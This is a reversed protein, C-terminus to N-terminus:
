SLGSHDSPTTSSTPASAAPAPAYTTAHAYAEPPDPLEANHTSTEGQSAASTREPPPASGVPRATAPAVLPSSDAAASTPSPSSATSAQAPEQAVGDDTSHAHSFTDARFDVPDPAHPTESAAVALPPNPETSPQAGTPPQTGSEGPNAPKSAAEKQAKRVQELNVEEELQDKFQRAMARARGVWRGVQSAVRPLKEPGLVILAIVFILLIESFGIDFM